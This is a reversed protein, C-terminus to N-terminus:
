CLEATHVPKEGACSVPCSVDPFSESKIEQIRGGGNGIENVVDTARSETTNTDRRNVVCVLFLPIAFYQNRVNNNDVGNILTIIRSPHELVM